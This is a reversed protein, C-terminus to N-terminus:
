GGHQRCLELWRQIGTSRFKQKHLLFFFKRRFDRHPVRCPRLTGHRFADELAIRSVCGVGLGAEVAGKIAETHQLALAITLEPLLGRMARDFTQRTGSGQERVIWAAQRLDDDTLARKRAFAHGPACFVVLEDGRWPTVDLDLV